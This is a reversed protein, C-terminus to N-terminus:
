KDAGGQQWARRQLGFYSVLIAALLLALGAFLSLLSGTLRPTALSAKVVDTMTRVNAIPLNADLRAVEARIPGLLALTRGAEIALARGQVQALATVTDRYARQLISTLRPHM